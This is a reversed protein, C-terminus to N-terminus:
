FFFKYPIVEGTNIQCDYIWFTLLSLTLFVVLLSKYKIPSNKIFFGHLIPLAILLTISSRYATATSVYSLMWLEFGLISFPCLYWVQKYALMTQQYKRVWIEVFAVPILALLVYRLIGFGIPRYAFNVLYYGYHPFMSVLTTTIATNAYLPLTLVLIIVLVYLVTRKKWNKTDEFWKKIFFIAGFPITASHVLCAIIYYLWYAKNRNESLKVMALLFLSAALIQRFINFSMQYYQLMYSFVAIPFNIINRYKWYIGINIFSTIFSILIVVIQYGGGISKIFSMFSYLLSYDDPFFNFNIAEFRNLYNFYDTGVGRLGSVFTLFIILLILFLKQYYKPSYKCICAILLAAVAFTLYIIM